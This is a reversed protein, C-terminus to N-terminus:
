SSAPPGADSSRPTKFESIFGVLWTVLLKSRGPLISAVTNMLMFDEEEFTGLVLAAVLYVLGGVGTALIFGLLEYNRIIILEMAIGMITAALFIKFISALPYRLKMVRCTYIMGITTGVVTTFAYCAAAGIAGFRKILLVDLVINILAMVSGLKYIFSQKDYGYLVAAAPNCMMTVTSALFMIQLPRQAGIFSHGYLFHIMSYALVAGAIGVPFTLFALYRTTLFFVRQTKDHSGAGAYGSMAPFLVRWFTSPLINSIRRVINFGLNYFAVEASTCLRGLFFNESKDWIIKDCFMIAMVSLNYRGIRKKLAKQLPEHRGFISLREKKIVILYFITNIVSFVFMVILLGTIGKGMLLVIVKAALSFPTIILNAYTFYEFKQLGEITASLIATVIGPLIGVFALFFFFSEAPSFFFDAIPTTFFVLVATTLLSLLVEIKLVFFVIPGLVEYEEKGEHEAIFKTVAQPFGMGVMWGFIGTFWLVLTFVGYNNVGLQRAVWISIAWSLLDGVSTNFLCHATNKILDFGHGRKNQV